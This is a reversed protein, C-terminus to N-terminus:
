VVEPEDRPDSGARLGLRNVLAWGAPLLGAVAAMKVLDGLLFPQVGHEYAASWGFAQEAGEPTWGALWTAGLAYIAVTGLLLAGLMPVVHRDYGREAVFGVLGAAIIFGLIYGFTPGELYSSGGGGDAFVPMGLLGVGAYASLTIVARWLGYLGGVLLVAFTQGTLPVPHWPIVIQACLAVAVVGGVVLIADRVLAADRALAGDSTRLRPILYEALTQARQSSM